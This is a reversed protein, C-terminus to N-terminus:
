LGGGPWPKSGMHSVHPRGPQLAATPATETSLAKREGRLVLSDKLDFNFVLGQARERKPPPPLFPWNPRRQFGM